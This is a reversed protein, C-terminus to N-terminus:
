GGVGGNLVATAVSVDSFPLVRGGVSQTTEHGKGAILVVDGPMAAEIALAIAAARDPEVVVEGSTGPLIDSIIALPDERRPNDSTVVVRDSGRCAAAGMMPRKGADRDGGCGFVTVIAGSALPRLASLVRELADPTHAYDVFVHRGGRPDPVPELRGAIRQLRALGALADPLSIGIALAAGLAALANELNHLGVLQLRLTGSGHPTRVTAQMGSLSASIDTAFIDAEADQTSYRWTQRTRTPTQAIRPDDGYLISVGDPDALESFLRQKAALYTAETGHYDLHDRSFSTFLSARFPIQDARRAHLGISSAEMAIFQSGQDRMEALLAQLIPSEPTTFKTLPGAPLAAGGIRHGTTGIVGPRWGSSLGIQELMWCVTTKGNTGTVGVVPVTRGPQQHLAAAVVAMAARPDPVTIVAVGPLVEVPGDCIVAAVQLGPTFRRGDVRAGRVAVYIGDPRAERSDHTVHAIAQDTRGDVRATALHPLLDALHM